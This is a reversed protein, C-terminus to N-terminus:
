RLNWGRASKTTSSTQWIPLWLPGFSDMCATPTTHQFETSRPPAHPRRSFSNGHRNVGPRSQEDRADPPLRGEHKRREGKHVVFVVFLVVLIAIIILALLVAAWLLLFWWEM